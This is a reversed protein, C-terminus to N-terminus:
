KDRKGKRLKAWYAAPYIVFGIIFFLLPLFWFQLFTYVRNKSEDQPHLLVTVKDGIGAECWSRRSWRFYGKVRVKNATVAVPGFSLRANSGSTRYSYCEVIEAEAAETELLVTARDYILWGAVPIPAFFILVFLAGILYGIFKAM